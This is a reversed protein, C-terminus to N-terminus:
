EEKLSPRGPTPFWITESVEPVPKGWARDPSPKPSPPKRCGTEPEMLIREACQEDSPQICRGELCFLACWLAATWPGPAKGKDNM